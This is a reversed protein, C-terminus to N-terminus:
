KKTSEEEEIEIPAPIELDCPSVDNFFISSGLDTDVVYIAHNDPKDQSSVIHPSIKESYLRKSGGAMPITAYSMDM